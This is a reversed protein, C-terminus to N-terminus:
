LEDSPKYFTGDGYELLVYYRMKGANSEDKKCSVSLYKGDESMLYYDKYTNADKIPEENMKYKSSLASFVNGFQNLATEKNEPSYAFQIAYFKGNSLAVRVSGWNLGGFSFSKRSSVFFLGDKNSYRNELYLGEKEFAKIVEERSAGFKVGFFTDQINQSYVYEKESDKKGQTKEEQANVFSLTFLSLTLLLFLKKM